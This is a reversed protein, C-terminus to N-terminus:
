TIHCLLDESVKLGEIVELVELGKSEEFVKSIPVLTRRELPRREPTATRATSQQCHRLPWLFVGNKERKKEKKTKKEKRKEGDDVKRM